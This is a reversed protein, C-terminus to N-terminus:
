LWGDAGAISSLSALPADTAHLEIVFTATGDFTEQEATFPRRVVVRYRGVPVDFMAAPAFGQDFAGRGYDAVYTFAGWGVVAIPGSVVLVGVELASRAGHAELLASPAAGVVITARVAGCQHTGWAVAVGDTTLGLVTKRVNAAVSATFQESEPYDPMYHNAFRARASNADVLMSLGDSDEYDLLM